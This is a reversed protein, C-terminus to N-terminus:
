AADRREIIRKAQEPMLAALMGIGVGDLAHTRDSADIAMLVYQGQQGAYKTLADEVVAYDLKRRKPEGKKRRGPPPLPLGVVAHQWVTAIVEYLELGREVALGIVAGFPLMNAAVAAGPGFGLAQEAAITTCGHQRAIEGLQRVVEAVRRARDTSADVRKDQKTIIVGLAVIRATRPEVVAWGCRAYGGDVGLIM